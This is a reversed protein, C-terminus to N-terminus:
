EGHTRVFGSTPPATSATPQVLKYRIKVGRPNETLGAVKLIGLNGERTRFEIIDAKDEYHWRQLPARHMQLPDYIGLPPMPEMHVLTAPISDFPQTLPPTRHGAYSRDIFWLETESQLNGAVVDVGSQELWDYLAKSPRNLTGTGANGVAAQLEKAIEPPPVHFTGTEFDFYQSETHNDFAVSTLTREMVSGFSLNPV